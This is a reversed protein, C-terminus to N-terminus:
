GKWRAKTGRVDYHVWTSYEGLGGQIMVKSKILSEIINYLEKPKMGAVKFDSAQGKLHTSNKKGGAKENRVPDRYGSTIILPKKLYSELITLQGQLIRLNVKVEEPYNDQIALYSTTSLNSSVNTTSESSIGEPIVEGDIANIPNYTVEQKYSLTNESKTSTWLDGIQPNNERNRSNKLSSVKDNDVINVHKSLFKINKFAKFETILKVMRPDPKIPGGSNMLGGSEITKLFKDMWDMFNNGLIAQQSADSDGLNLNTNNDKLNINISNDLININNYKHDIKLGESDNVYIQTIHDFLLSKMSIYDSESLKKLKNELNINYNDAYIYEPSEVNGQDFVVMVVKGIDPISYMNGNLDKWPLAFPIDELPIQDFVDMVRIKVRGLRKPDNNDEVIGVYTKNSDVM